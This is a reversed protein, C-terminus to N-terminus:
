GRIKDRLIYYRYTAEAALKGLTGYSNKLGYHDTFDRYTEDGDAVAGAIMDGFLHTLAVGHGGFGHTFWVGDAPRGIVSNGIVPMKHRAYSMIGHWSYDIKIGELQPYVRMLDSYLKDKIDPPNMATASIRGGWLIRTDALPRYYDFDFRTDYVAAGTNIATKLRDGLPETAMVYTAVPTQTRDYLPSLGKMYASGALIVTKATVNGKPTHIIHKGDSIPELRVAPSHEYIQAGKAILANALGRIYKVPHFHFAGREHLAGYYHASKLLERCERADYEGLNVGFAETMLSKYDDLIEPRDFWNALLIGSNNIDCDINFDRINDKVMKVATESHRYLTQAHSFGVKKILTEEDLNFGSFVFGGNRGSCGHGVEQAEIVVVSEISRDILGKAASLGAFGAGIVCVDATISNELTPM